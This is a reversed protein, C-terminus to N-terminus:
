VAPREAPPVDAGCEPCREQSARIDYGCKTCLRQERRWQQRTVRAIDFVIIATPILIAGLYATIFLAKRWTITPPHIPDGLAHPLALIGGFVCLLIFGLLYTLRWSAHSRM